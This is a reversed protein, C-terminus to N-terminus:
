IWYSATLVGSSWLLIYGVAMTIASYLLILTTECGVLKITTSRNCGIMHLTEIEQKRLQISLVTLVVLMLVVFALSLISVVSLISEVRYVSELVEQIVHEPIIAQLPNNDDLYKGELVTQAQLDKPFILIASLPYEKEDGHFHFSNINEDTIRTIPTEPIHSEGDTNNTRTGDDGSIHGHGTGTFIWGTELTTIVAM